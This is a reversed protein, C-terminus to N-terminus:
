KELRDKRSPDRPDDSGGRPLFSSFSVPRIVFNTTHPHGPDSFHTKGSVDGPGRPTDGHRQPHGQAEPPAGRARKPRQPVMPGM